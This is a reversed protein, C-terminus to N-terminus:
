TIKVSGRLILDVKEFSELNDVKKKPWRFNESQFSSEPSPFVDVKM